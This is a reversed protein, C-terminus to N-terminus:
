RTPRRSRMRTGGFVLTVLFLIAAVVVLWFLGKIVFGLIGLIVWLLILGIVLGFM